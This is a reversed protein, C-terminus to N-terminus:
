MGLHTMINSVGNRSFMKSLCKHKSVLPGNSSDGCGNMMACVDLSSREDGSTSM